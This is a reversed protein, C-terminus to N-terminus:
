ERARQTRTAFHRVVETEDTGTWLPGFLCDRGGQETSMSHTWVCPSQESDLVPIQSKHQQGLRFEIDHQARPRFLPYRGIHRVIDHRESWNSEGDVEEGDVSGIRRGGGCTTVVPLTMRRLRTRLLLAALWCTPGSQDADVTTGDEAATRM